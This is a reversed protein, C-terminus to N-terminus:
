RSTFIEFCLHDFHSGCWSVKFKKYFKCLHLRWTIFICKGGVSKHNNKLLGILIPNKHWFHIGWNQVSMMNNFILVTRLHNEWRNSFFFHLKQLRNKLNAPMVILTTIRRPVNEVKKDIFYFVLKLYYAKEHTVKETNRHFFRNLRRNQHKKM